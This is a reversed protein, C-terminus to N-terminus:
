VPKAACFDQLAGQVGSAQVCGGCENQKRKGNYLLEIGSRPSIQKGLIM